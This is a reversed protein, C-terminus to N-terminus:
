LLKISMLESEESSETVLQQVFDALDGRKCQSFVRHLQKYTSLKNGKKQKWKRLMAVRQTPVSHPSEGLIAGEEADTLGLCPSIARWDNINSAIMALHAESLPQNWPILDSPHILIQIFM